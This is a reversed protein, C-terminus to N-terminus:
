CKWWRGEKLVLVAGVGGVWATTFEGERVQGEAAHARGDPSSPTAGSSAPGAPGPSQSRAWRWRRWPCCASGAAAAAEPVCDMWQQGRWYFSQSKLQQSCLVKKRVNTQKRVRLAHQVRSNRNMHITRVWGASCVDVIHEGRESHLVQIWIWQFCWWLMRWILGNPSREGCSSCCGGPCLGFTQHTCIKKKTSVRRQLLYLIHHLLSPLPKNDAKQGQYWCNLGPFPRKNVANAWWPTKVKM